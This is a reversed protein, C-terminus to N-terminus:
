VRTRRSRLKLACLTTTALEGWGTAYQFDLETFSRKCPTFRDLQQAQFNERLEPLVHARTFVFGGKTLNVTREKGAWFYFRLAM